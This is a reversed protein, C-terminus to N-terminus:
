EKPLEPNEDAPTQAEAAAQRKAEQRERREKEKEAKVKEIEAEKDQLQKELSKVTEVIKKCEEDKRIDPTQEATMLEYVRGGLEVFQREINRKIGFIDVKLKGIRSYEETKDIVLELGERISDLLASM